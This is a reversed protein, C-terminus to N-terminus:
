GDANKGAAESQINRALDALLFKEALFPGGPLVAAVLLKAVVGTSWGHVVAGEMIVGWYAIFLIGHLGGVVTVAMPIGGIYKLPMAVGLLLLFSWGEWFGITRVRDIPSSLKLM